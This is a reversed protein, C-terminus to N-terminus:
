IAFCGRRALSVCVPGAVILHDLVEVGISALSKRLNETLLEDARSPEAAGSPHNHAFIVAAADLDLSRRIVERPYVATQNLTGRFAEEGSILRHSSDLYLVYFVEYSLRGIRSRIWAEAAEPRNMMPAESLPLSLIRTQLEMAAAIKALPGQLDYCRTVDSCGQSNVRIESHTLNAAANAIRGLGDQLLAKADKEGVLVELVELDTLHKMMM